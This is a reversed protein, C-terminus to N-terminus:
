NAGYRNDLSVDVLFENQMLFKRGLLVPYKMSSRNSLTINVPYKKGQIKITTDIYFREDIHGNSSRVHGVQYDKTIIVIEPHDFPSFHLETGNKTTVEKMKTAHLAGSYAGTDTKAIVTGIGFEPFSVQEFKGIIKKM